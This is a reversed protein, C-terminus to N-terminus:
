NARRDDSQSGHICNIIAGTIAGIAGIEGIQGTAGIQGIGGIQGTTNASMKSNVM